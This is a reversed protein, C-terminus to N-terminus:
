SRVRYGAGRVTELRSPMGPKDLKRRLYGIYVDVVNSAGAFNFGWVADLIQQRTLVQDAHLMLYSLLAFERSPLDVRTDGRTAIRTHTDLTLDGVELIHASQQGHRAAARVRAALEAFAFPKVLYDDAGLDLMDVKDDVESLASIVIVPTESDHIRIARLVDRGSGDPLMLDLLILDYEHASALALAGAVTGAREISHGEAGLGSAMFSAIRDEDEILLIRM